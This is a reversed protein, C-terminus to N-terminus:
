NKGDSGRRIEELIEDAGDSLLDDALRVALMEAEEIGGRRTGSLAKRGDITGIYGSFIFSEGEVKGYAGIPVQCGGELRQLFAREARVATMTHSDSLPSLIEMSKEDAERIEVAIAGQGVAPLIQETPIVEGVTGTLGLRLLGAHAAIIGDWDSEALKRLRTNVNGRLDVITLDPRLHLVQSKRRLSGTAITGRRPVDSLRRAAKKPHPIFADRVDERRTVAGLVLGAPLETPLDKLSHVAADIEGSLLAAEIERTFLGRDGIKSLPSDLVRDGTTRIVIVEALLEPHQAEVARRISETQWLALQSGRSGFTFVENM